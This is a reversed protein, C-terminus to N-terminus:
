CQLRRPRRHAGPPAPRQREKRGLVGARHRLQGQDARAPHRRLQRELEVVQRQRSEESLGMTAASDCCDRPPPRERLTSWRSSTQVTPAPPRWGLQASLTQVIQRDPFTEAFRIMRFLNPRSFGQGYDATLQRSVTSVIQEGYAARQERLTERRIREGVGWYLLVLGANVAQAVRTRGADILTRLDSLLQTTDPSAPAPVLEGAKKRKKGM